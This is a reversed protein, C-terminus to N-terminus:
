GGEMCGWGWGWGMGMGMGAGKMGACMVMGAGKMGAGMGIGTGRRMGIEVAGWISQEGGSGGSVRGPLPLM